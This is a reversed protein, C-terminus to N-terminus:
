YALVQAKLIRDFDILGWGDLNSKRWKQSTSQFLKELENRSIKGRSELIQAMLGTVIPTSFSTGTVIDYGKIGDFVDMWGTCATVINVGPAIIDPKIRGDPTPGTNSFDARTNEFGSSGVCVSLHSTGPTDVPRTGNNGAATCTLIGNMALMDVARDQPENGATGSGGGSYNILDAGLRAAEDLGLLFWSIKGNNYKDFVKINYIRADPAIGRLPGYPSNVTNGALISAVATGHGVKDNPNNEPTVDVNALIKGRLMPHNLDMGSDLVAIKIGRGTYTHPISLKQLKGKFPRLMRFQMNTKRDMSVSVVGPIRYIYGIKKGTDYQGIELFLIPLVSAIKTITGYRQLYQKSNGLSARDRFEIILEVM